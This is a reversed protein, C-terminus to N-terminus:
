FIDYLFCFVLFMGISPKAQDRDIEVPRKELESSLVQKESDLQEYAEKMALLEQELENVTNMYSQRITELNNTSEAFFYFLHLSMIIMLLFNGSRLEDNAKEIEKYKESFDEREKTVQDVIQQVIEDFSTNYDISLCSQLQNRVIDIQTQQYEEWARNTEDLQATLSVLNKRLEEIEETEQQNMM